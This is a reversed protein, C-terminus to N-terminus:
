FISYNVERPFICMRKLRLDIMTKSGFMISSYEAEAINLEKISSNM